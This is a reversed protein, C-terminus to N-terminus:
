SNVQGGQSNGWRAHTLHWRSRARATCRCLYCSGPASQHGSRCDAIKYCVVLCRFVLAARDCVVIFPVQQCLAARARVNSGQQKQGQASATRWPNHLRHRAYDGEGRTFRRAPWQIVGIPKRRAGSEASLTCLASQAM